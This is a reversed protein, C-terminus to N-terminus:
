DRIVKVVFSVGDGNFQVFYAGSEFLSFDLQTSNCNYVEKQLVIKGALDMVQIELASYTGALDFTVISSTPNPSVSILNANLEEIGACTFIQISDTSMCGNVDTVTVFYIGSDAVLTQGTSLDQWEYSTMGAGADLTIAGSCSNTDAGLYVIPLDFVQVTQVTSDTCTGDTVTLNYNYIGTTLPTADLDNGSGVMVNNEYWTEVTSGTTTSTFSVTEGLCLSDDSVTFSDFTPPALFEITTEMTDACASLVILSYTHIGVGAATTTFSNGSGALVNDKLWSYSFAGTANGVFNIQEGICAVTASQTISNIVPPDYASVTHTVSDSCVGDTVVLKFVYSGVTAGITAYDLSTSVLVNNLYWSQSTIGTSSNTLFISDGVCINTQNSSFIPNANCCADVVLSTVLSSSTTGGLNGNTTVQYTGAPLLGLDAVHLFSTIAPLIIGPDDYNVDITIFFGVVSVNVANLPYNAAGLSGAVNMYTIACDTSPPNNEVVSNIQVFGYAKTSILFLIFLSSIRKFNFVMTSFLIKVFFLLIELKRFNFVRIEGFTFM